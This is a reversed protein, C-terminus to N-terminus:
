TRISLALSIVDNKGRVALFQPDAIIKAGDGDEVAFAQLHEIRDLRWLQCIWMAASKDLDGRIIAAGFYDRIDAARVATHVRIRGRRLSRRGRSPPCSWAASSGIDTCNDGSVNPEFRCSQIRGDSLFDSKLELVSILDIVVQHRRLGPELLDDECSPLLLSCFPRRRGLRARVFDDTGIM